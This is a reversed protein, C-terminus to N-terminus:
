LWVACAFFILVVFVGYAVALRRTKRKVAHSGLLVDQWFETERTTSTLNPAVYRAGIQVKGTNYPILRNM